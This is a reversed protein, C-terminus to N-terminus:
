AKDGLNIIIQKLGHNKLQRFCDKCVWDIGSIEAIAGNLNLGIEKASNIANIEAHGEQGCISKCKEYDEGDQRPCVEQPNKCSNWGYVVLNNKIIKCSVVKKACTM